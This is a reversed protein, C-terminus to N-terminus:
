KDGGLHKELAPLTLGDDLKQLEERTLMKFQGTQEDIERKVEPVVVDTAPVDVKVEDSM